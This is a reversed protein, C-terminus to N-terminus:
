FLDFLDDEREKKQRKYDSLWKKANQYEKKLPFDETNMFDLLDKYTEPDELIEFMDLAMEKGVVEPPEVEDIPTSEYEDRTILGDGVECDEDMPDGLFYHISLIEDEVNEEYFPFDLRAVSRHLGKNRLIFEYLFSNASNYPIGESKGEVYRIYPYNAKIYEWYGEDINYTEFFQELFPVFVYEEIKEPIMDYLMNFTKDHYSNQRTEFRLGAARIKEPKAKSFHFACFYEQFSRHTFQYRGDEYFMLCMNTTLDYVFDSVDFIRNISYKDKTKLLDFFASIQEITLEYKEEMYTRACFEGFVEAFQDASLGTRLPRKYAGKSADHKVSLAEYAERYFVYMHSPIEAYQEFTMLMITLLLPNETFARHTNFLQNNLLERFKQKISPEDPRFDLKDILKVAEERDFPQLYFVSFRNFQVFSSYPRSSIIFHNKRFRNTFAEVETEFKARYESGIEDLGDLLILFQGQLLSGKLKDLPVDIGISTFKEYIYDLLTDYKDSFDKLPVLIPIANISKYEKACDLLLHRMMMSKGLGGTGSIIMFSPCCEIVGAADIDQLGMTRIVENSGSARMRKELRNCVYFDYFPKAEDKYLLTKIKGYRDLVNEIYPGYVSEDIPSYTIPKKEQASETRDYFSLTFGRDENGVESVFAWPNGKTKPEQFWKLYTERGIENDIRELMVFCWVGFLFSQFCIEPTSLIEKKTLEKGDALVKFKQDDEISDDAELVDLVANILWRGKASMNIFSDTFRIFKAFVEGGNTSLREKFASLTEEDQFPLNVSSSMTCQRYATLNQRLQRERSDEYDPELIKILNLACRTESLVDINGGMAARASQKPKKAQLFLDLLIGGCLRYKEKEASM